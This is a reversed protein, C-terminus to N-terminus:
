FSSTSRRASWSVQSSSEPFKAMASDVSAEWNAHDIHASTAEGQDANDSRLASAQAPLESANTPTHSVNQQQTKLLDGPDIIQGGRVHVDMILRQAEPTKFYFRYHGDPLKRIYGPLDVLITKPLNQHRISKGEPSLLEIM